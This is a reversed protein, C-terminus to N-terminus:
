QRLICFVLDAQMVRLAKKMVKLMGISQQFAYTVVVWVCDLVHEM